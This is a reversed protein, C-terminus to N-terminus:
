SLFNFGDYYKVTSQPLNAQLNSAPTYTPFGHGHGPIQAATLAVEGTSASSVTTTGSWTHVGFFATSFNVTGSVTGGTSQSFSNIRILCDNATSADKTWGTPAAAQAFFTKSGTAFVDM